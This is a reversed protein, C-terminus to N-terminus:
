CGIAFGIFCAILCIECYIPLSCLCQDWCGAACSSWCDDDVALMIARRSGCTGFVDYMNLPNNLVYNYYGFLTLPDKQLFRGLNPSYYRMRNFQLGADFGFERATYLLNNKNASTM